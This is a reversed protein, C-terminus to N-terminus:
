EDGGKQLLRSWGHQDWSEHPMHNGDHGKPLVCTMVGENGVRPGRHGCEDGGKDAPVPWYFALGDEIAVQYRGIDTVPRKTLRALERHVPCKTMGDIRCRLSHELDWSLDDTFEVVHIDRGAVGYLLYDALLTPDPCGRLSCTVHQGVAVFLTGHSGCSPCRGAVKQGWGDSHHEVM